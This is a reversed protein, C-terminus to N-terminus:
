ASFIFAITVVLSTLLPWILISIARSLNQRPIGLWNYLVRWKALLWDRKFWILFVLGTIIFGTTTLASTSIQPTYDM